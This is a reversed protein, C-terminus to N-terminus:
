EFKERETTVEEVSFVGFDNDWSSRVYSVVAAVERDSLHGFSPMYNGGFMVQRAVRGGNELRENGALRAAGGGVDTGNRGHCGVCNNQYVTEGEAVLAEADGAAGQAESETETTVSAEVVEGTPSVVYWSGAAGQGKLQGPAADEAFHYLPRGDYALQAGEAREITSLLGGDVPEEFAIEGEVLVPPWKAACNGACVSKGERDRTFIYLANGEDDVLYEGLDPHSAVRVTTEGGEAVVTTILAVLLTLLVKAGRSLFLQINVTEVKRCGLDPVGSSGPVHM